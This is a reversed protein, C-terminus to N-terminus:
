GVRRLGLDILMLLIAISGGAYGSLVVREDRRSRSQGTVIGISGALFGGLLIGAGVATAMVETADTFFGIQGLAM